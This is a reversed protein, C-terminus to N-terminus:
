LTMPLLCHFMSTGHTYWISGISWLYAERAPGPIMGNGKCQTQQNSVIKSACPSYNSQDHSADSVLITKGNPDAVLQKFHYKSPRALHLEGFLLREWEKQWQAIM